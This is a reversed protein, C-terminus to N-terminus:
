PLFVQMMHPYEECGVELCKDAGGAGGYRGTWGKKALVASVDTMLTLVEEPTERSGILTYHKSM